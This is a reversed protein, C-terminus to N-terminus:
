VAARGLAVSLMTKGVGPPWVFLVNSADDLFRLTALNRILKEDGGPPCM